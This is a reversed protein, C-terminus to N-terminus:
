LRVPALTVSGMPPACSSVTSSLSGCPVGSATSTLAAPGLPSAHGLPSGPSMAQAPLATMLPPPPLAASLNTSFGGTPSLPQQLVPPVTIRQLRTNPSLTRGPQLMPTHVLQTQQMLPQHLYTPQAGLPQPVIRTHQVHPQPQLPKQQPSRTPSAAQKKEKKAQGPKRERSTACPSTNRPMPTISTSRTRRLRPSFARTTSESPSADQAEPCDEEGERAVDVIRQRVSKRPLDFPSGVLPTAPAGKAVEQAALSLHLSSRRSGAPSQLGAKPPPAAPASPAAVTAAGNRTTKGFAAFAKYPARVADAKATSDTPRPSKPRSPSRTLKARGTSPPPRPSTTGTAGTLGASTRPARVTTVSNVKGKVCKPSGFSVESSSKVVTKTTPEEETRQEAGPHRVKPPPGSTNPMQIRAPTAIDSSSESQHMERLQGQLLSNEFQLDRKELEHQQQRDLIQLQLRWVEDSNSQVKEMAEQLKSQLQSVQNTTEGGFKHLDGAFATPAGLGWAAAIGAVEDKAQAQAALANSLAVELEKDKAECAQQAVIAEQIAACFGNKSTQFGCSAEEEKVQVVALPSQGIRARFVASGCPEERSELRLAQPFKVTTIDEPSQLRASVPASGSPTGDETSLVEQSQMRSPPVIPPSDEEVPPVVQLQDATDNAPLEPPKVAAVAARLEQLESMLQRQQLAWQEEAKARQQHQELLQEQLRRAEENSAHAQVSTAELTAWLREVLSLQELESANELLKDGKSVAAPGRFLGTATPTGIQEELGATEPVETQVPVWEAPPESCVSQNATDGPISETTPTFNHEALRQPGEKGASPLLNAAVGAAEAPAHGCDLRSQRALARLDRLSNLLSEHRTPWDEAGGQSVQGTLLQQKLQDVSFNIQNDLTNVPEERMEFGVHQDLAGPDSGMLCDSALIRPVALAEAGEVVVRPSFHHALQERERQFQLLMQQIHRVEVNTAQFMSVAMRAKSLVLDHAQSTSGVMGLSLRMAEVEQESAIVQEWQAQLRSRLEKNEPLWPSPCNQELLDALVLREQLLDHLRMEQARCEELCRVADNCRDDECDFIGLFHGMLQIRAELLALLQTFEEEESPKVGRPCSEAM